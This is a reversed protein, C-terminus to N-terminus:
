PTNHAHSDAEGDDHYLRGAVDAEAQREHHSEEHGFPDSVEEVLYAQLRKQKCEWRKESDKTGSAVFLKLLLNWFFM